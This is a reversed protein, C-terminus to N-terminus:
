LPSVSHGKFTLRIERLLQFESVQVTDIKEQRIGVTLDLFGHRHPYLVAITHGTRYRSPDLRDLDGNDFHFAIPFEQGSKDRISLRLRLFHEVRVIEGLLCWHRRPRFYFEGESAYYGLDVDDEDPCSDFTPFARDNRLDMPFAM